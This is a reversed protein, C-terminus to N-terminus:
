VDWSLLTAQCPVPSVWDELLEQGLSQEASHGLKQQGM